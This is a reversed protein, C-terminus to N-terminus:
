VKNSWFFLLDKYTFQLSVINNLPLDCSGTGDVEFIVEEEKKKLKNRWRKRRLIFIELFLFSYYFVKDRWFLKNV